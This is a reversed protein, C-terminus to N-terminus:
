LYCILIKSFGMHEPNLGRERGSLWWYLESDLLLIFLLASANLFLVLNMLSEFNYSKYFFIFCKEERNKCSMSRKRLSSQRRCEDHWREILASEVRCDEKKSADRTKFGVMGPNEDWETTEIDNSDWPIAHDQEDDDSLWAKM